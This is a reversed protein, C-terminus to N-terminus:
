FSEGARGERSGRSSGKGIEFGLRQHVQSVRVLLTLEEGEGLVFASRPSLSLVLSVESPLNGLLLERGREDQGRRGQDRRSSSLHDRLSFSPFSPLDLHTPNPLHLKLSRSRSSVLRPISPSLHLFTLEVTESTGEGRDASVLDTSRSNSHM